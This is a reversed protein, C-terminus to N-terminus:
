TRYHKLHAFIHIKKRNTACCIVVDTRFLTAPTYIHTCFANKALTTNNNKIDKHPSNDAHLPASLAVQSRAIGYCFSFHHTHFIKTSMYTSRASHFISRRIGGRYACRRKREKGLILTLPIRRRERGLLALTKTLRTFLIAVRRRLNQWVVAIQYIETMRLTLTKILRTLRKKALHSTALLETEVSQIEM